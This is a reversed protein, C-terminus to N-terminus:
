SSLGLLLSEGENKVDCLQWNHLLLHRLFAIATEKAQFDLKEIVCGPGQSSHFTTHVAALQQTPDLILSWTGKYSARGDKLTMLSLGLGGM